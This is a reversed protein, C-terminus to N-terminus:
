HEMLIYFYLVRVYDSGSKILHTNEYCRCKRLFVLNFFFLPDAKQSRQREVYFLFLTLERCCKGIACSFACGRLTFHCKPFHQSLPVTYLFCNLDPFHQRYSNLLFYCTLSYILYINQIKPNLNIAWRSKNKERWIEIWKMKCIPSAQSDFRYVPVKAWCRCLCLPLLM